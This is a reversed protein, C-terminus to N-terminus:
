CLVHCFILVPPTTIVNSKLMAHSQRMGVVRVSVRAVNVTSLTTSITVGHNKGQYTMQSTPSAATQRGTIWSRTALASRAKVNVNEAEACKM